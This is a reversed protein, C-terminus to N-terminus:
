VLGEIQLACRSLTPNSVIVDFERYYGYVVYDPNNDQAIWVVPTTRIDTLVNKVQGLKATDLVVDVEMTDAYDGATITVRGSADTSKVSYDIIGLSAGYQSLGLEAFQGLVCAGCKAVGSDTLTIEIDAGAYPPLDTIALQTQRVIPEFFYAYWDQISSTSVLSFTENYVEGETADTMVVTASAADVNILGLANVVSSIVITVDIGGSRETQEQVIDNFMKFRNTSSIEEWYTGDDTTPDNGLNSGTQSQYIKHTATAAGGATGTVMVYDLISYTTTSDYEAEDAETVNSATLEADGITAPRIIKM